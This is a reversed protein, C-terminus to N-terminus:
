HGRRTKRDKLADQYFKEFSVGEGSNIVNAADKKGLEIMKTIVDKKFTIPIIDDVLTETPAVIYRFNVNPHNEKAHIIVDQSKQYSNLQLYRMLMQITKYNSTDKYPFAKLSYCMIVDVVIESEDTTVERCRNIAANIDVGRVTGGDIFSTNRFPISPFIAPIASSSM